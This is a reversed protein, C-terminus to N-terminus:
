NCSSNETVRTHKNVYIVPFHTTMVNELIYWCLNLFWVKIKVTIPGFDVYHSSIQQAKVVNEIKQQWTRRM